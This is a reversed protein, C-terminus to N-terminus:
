AHCMQDNYFPEYKFMGLIEYETSNLDSSILTAEYCCKSTYLTCVVPSSDTFLQRIVVM